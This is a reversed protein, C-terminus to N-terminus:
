AATICNEGADLIIEKDGFRFVANLNEPIVIVFDAYGNKKEYSVSIEGAPVCRKGSVTDLGDVLVPAILIDDYGAKDAEERIGLIYDFLYAAVAGFMPHNHSRDWTAHPWNEWITTAGALRMGDFSIPDTSMMLDAALQADGHEFLVRTVIDTGFIGTDYRGLARYYKVLNDYTRKDGLGMDIAIANAGQFGGFFNGDWTNFYAAKVAARRAEIRAELMPIETERGILRGIEIVRQMSKIYFYNNVFAAPLVVQIPACWDGLCWEGAKDSAVLDNVSHAELYDFYRLMQAYLRKAPEIDGYHKYYMYPVEVIACGWGGPGGGCRTYPATYQVHGSFIDQCDGIDRIWKDYFARESLTTMAAHCALQGDGTYGRREIHPCDSPIGAHMNSTQTNLYANYMWNLTENNSTFASNVKVDTHVRRVSIVEADGQVTFYRFAFWTFRPMVIRETGDSIVTFRQNFHYNMDPTGDENKEEAFLVTVTEGAAAHLKLVPYASMNCGSDYHRGAENECLLVPTYEKQTRDAPCDSFLYETDLPAAPVANKWASDDYGLAFVSEDCIRYDQNEHTTLHYTTVFSEGIKDYESSCVEIEGGDTEITLRYIAKADGYREPEYTYWGGGFQIALVNDGTKLLATVDYEPVYIRHGTVTEETPRNNRVEYDTSLPLFQDETIECGNIYCHFFGLGIVRITAKKVEGCVPISRRLVPFHPIGNVDPTDTWVTIGDKKTYAGACVWKAEGFVEHQKM